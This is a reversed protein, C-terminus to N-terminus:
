KAHSHLAFIVPSSLSILYKYMGCVTSILQWYVTYFATKRPPLITCTKSPSFFFFLKRPVHAQMVVPRWVSADYIICLQQGSTLLKSCFFFIHSRHSGRHGSSHQAFCHTRPCTRNSHPPFLEPWQLLALHILMKYCVSDLLESFSFDLATNEPDISSLLAM